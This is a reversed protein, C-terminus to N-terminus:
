NHPLLLVAVGACALVSTTLAAIIGIIRPIVKTKVLFLLLFFEILSVILLGMAAAYPIDTVSGTRSYHWLSQLYSTVKVALPVLLIAELTTLATIVLKLRKM